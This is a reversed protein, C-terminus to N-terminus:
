VPVTYIYKLFLFGPNMQHFQESSAKSLKQEKPYNQKSWLQESHFFIIHVKDLFKTPEKM